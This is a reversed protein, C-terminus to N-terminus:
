FSIKLAMQISRSGGIQYIPSFGGLSGGSGLGRSLMQTSRGFLASNISGIPDAFNPHNFLNFFEARLQVNLRENFNFQRRLAFDLQWFPFGRLANRGLTGQRPAPVTPPVAFAARNLRTGGPATADEIYVPVGLILDPRVDSSVAGLVVSGAILNIPTASRAMYIKDAAWDRFIARGVRGLDPTPINYTVAASFSHRIDFDSVARGPSFAFDDSSFDDISKSWSYSALAQVGRALRRRFQIQLAHYDSTSGNVTLRYQSSIPSVSNLEITQKLLRRGVAAVYSATLAQNAGLSQEAAVNWQYTRPLRLNPDFLNLFDFPPTLRLPLPAAQATTLPYPVNLFQVRGALSGLADAATSTGLDYFVGFGGRLITERGPHQFLQYSVGVRPAFNNYTTKWLPSGSPALTIQPLNKLDTVAILQPGDSSSPATNVEWRVGYTLTLRRKIKWADQAFASFNDAVLNLQPLSEVSTRSSIGSLVTGALPPLGGPRLGVGSFRASQGYKRLGLSPTLRRFDFGFKIQHPGSILSVTDVINLQKQVSDVSVGINYFANVGGVISFTYLSTDSSLGSPYLLSESPPVAGGFNDVAFSGTGANRSYNLRLDNNIQPTINLMAGATFTQAKMVTL